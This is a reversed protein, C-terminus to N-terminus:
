RADGNLLKLDSEFKCKVANYIEDDLVLLKDLKEAIDAPIDEVKPKWYSRPQLILVFGVFNLIIRYINSPRVFVCKEYGSM